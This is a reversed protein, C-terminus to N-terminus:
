LGQYRGVDRASPGGADSVLQERLQAKARPHLRIADCRHITYTECAFLMRSHNAFVNSDAAM